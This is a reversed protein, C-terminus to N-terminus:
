LVILPLNIDIDYIDRLIKECETMDISSEGGSERAKAENMTNSIQLNFGKSATIMVSSGTLCYSKILNDKAIYYIDENTLNSYSDTYNIEIGYKCKEQIITKPIEPITSPPILPITTMIKPITTPIPSTITTPIKNLLTSPEPLIITTQTIPITTPTIISITTPPISITSPIQLPITSPSIPFTTPIKIPITSPITTPLKLPITTPNKIPITTPIKTLITTPLTTPIIIPITTPIKTPIDYDICENSTENLFHYVDPCDYKSKFCYREKNRTLNFYYKHVESSCLQLVKSEADYM